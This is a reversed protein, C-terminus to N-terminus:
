RQGTVLPLRRGSVESAEAQHWGTASDATKGSVVLCIGDAILSSRGITRQAGELKARASWADGSSHGPELQATTRM